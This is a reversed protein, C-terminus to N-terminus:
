RSAIAIASIGNRLDLSCEGNMGTYSQFLLDNDEASIALGARHRNLAKSLRQKTTLTRQGIEKSSTLLKLNDDSLAHDQLEKYLTDRRAEKRKKDQLLM